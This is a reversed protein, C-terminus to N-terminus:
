QPASEFAVVCPRRSRIHQKYYLLRMCAGRHEVWPGHTRVVTWSSDGRQYNQFLFFMRHRCVHLALPKRTVPAVSRFLFKFVCHEGYQTTRSERDRERLFRRNTNKNITKVSMDRNALIHMIQIFICHKSQPVYQVNSHYFVGIDTPVVHGLMFFYIGYVFEYQCIKYMRFKFICNLIASFYM